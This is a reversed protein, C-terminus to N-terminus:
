SRIKNLISIVPVAIIASVLAEPIGNSLGITFLAKGVTSPNIGIAQAFKAAYFVYTLGLVFITNTLTGIVAAVGIGTKPFKKRISAYAYYSFLGILIRPLIAIIPNWFIFSTPTPATFAQYMSFLGFCFGVAAGVVPGEVIAGIIVPVHMITAKVPPINIFGLGTLGLFLTIGTLMGTVVLKRISMTMTTKREM